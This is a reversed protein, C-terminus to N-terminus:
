ELPDLVEIDIMKDTIEVFEEIFGLLDPVTEKGSAYLINSILSEVKELNWKFYLGYKNHYFSKAFEMDIALQSPLSQSAQPDHPRKLKLASLLKGVGSASYGFIDGIQTQNGYDKYYDSCSMPHVAEERQANLFEELETPERHPLKLQIIKGM